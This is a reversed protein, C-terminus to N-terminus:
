LLLSLGLKYQGSADGKASWCVKLLIPIRIPADQVPIECQLVTGSSLPRDAIMGIGGGAINSAVGRLVQQRQETSGFEPSVVAVIELTWPFRPSHRREAM